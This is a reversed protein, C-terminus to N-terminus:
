IDMNPHKGKLQTAQKSLGNVQHCAHNPKVFVYTQIM